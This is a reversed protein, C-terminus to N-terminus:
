RKSLFEGKENTLSNSQAIIKGDEEEASLYVVGKQVNVKGNEVPRYPTEIFGM